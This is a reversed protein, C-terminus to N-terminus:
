YEFGTGLLRVLIFAFIPERGLEAKVAFNSARSSVLVYKCFNNNIQEFPAKDLQNPKHFPQIFDSAWAECGYTSISRVTADFVKLPIDPTFTLGTYLSSCMQFLAKYGNGKLNYVAESFSSNNIFTLGLYTYKDAIVLIETGYKFIYKDSTKRKRFIVVKTKKINVRLQWTQCYKNLKNLSTQLGHQTESIILLNDAYLLCGILQKALNLPKVDIDNFLSHVVNLYLNLLYPSLTDCQKIGKQLQFPKTIGTPLKVCSKVNRYM